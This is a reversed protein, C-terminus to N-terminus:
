ETRAMSSVDSAPCICRMIKGTARFPSRRVALKVNTPRGTTFQYHWMSHVILHRFAPQSAVTVFVARFAHIQCQRAPNPHGVIFTAAPISHVGLTAAKRKQTLTTQRHLQQASWAVGATYRNNISRFTVTTAVFQMAPSNFICINLIRINLFAKSIAPRVHTIRTTDQAAWHNVQGENYWVLTAAQAGPSTGVQTSTQSAAPM